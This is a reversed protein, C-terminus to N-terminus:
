SDVSKFGKGLSWTIVHQTFPKFLKMHKHLLVVITVMPLFARKWWVNSKIVFCLHLEAAAVELSWWFNPIMLVLWYPAVGLTKGSSRTNKCKM